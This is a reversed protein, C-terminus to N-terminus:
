IGNCILLHLRLNNPLKRASVRELLEPLYVKVDLATIEPTQAQASIFYDTPMM